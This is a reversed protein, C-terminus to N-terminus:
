KSEGPCPAFECSPPVRGVVSGDPCLKGDKTCFVDGDNFVDEDNFVNEDSNCSQTTQVTYFTGPEPQISRLQRIFTHFERRTTAFGAEACASLGGEIPVPSGVRPSHVIFKDVTGRAIAHGVVQRVTRLAAEDLAGGISGINIDVARDEAFAPGHASLIAGVIALCAWKKM